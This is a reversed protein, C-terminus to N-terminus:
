GKTKGKAAAASSKSSAKKAAPAKKAGAVAPSVTSTKAKVKRSAQQAAHRTRVIEQAELWHERDKGDVRGDREYLEYAVEATEEDLGMIAGEKNPKLNLWSVGSFVILPGSRYDLLLAASKFFRKAPV